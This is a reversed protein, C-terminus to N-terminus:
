YHKNIFEKLKQIKHNLDIGKQDCFGCIWKYDRETGFRQSFRRVTMILRSRFNMPYESMSNSNVEQFDCHMEDLTIDSTLYSLFLLEYFAFPIVDDILEKVLTDHPGFEKTIMPYSLLYGWRRQWHYQM